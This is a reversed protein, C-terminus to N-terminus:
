VHYEPSKFTLHRVGEPMDAIKRIGGWTQKYNPIVLENVAKSVVNGAVGAPNAFLMFTEKRKATATPYVMAQTSGNDNYVEVLDGEKVGLDAMDDPNMQIFPYPWRDTVLENDQDLYASQWVHNTRGNNILFPWKDKEAQKGAAQLGRWQTEFFTAKGDKGGFKGDVYLRKTGVIKGDKLDTAPEQFGNTGMARLADYTVFKGGNANAHYGDMFADEETKWDFGKFKDAVDNKGMARFTREMANALRAAILCDPMAQGPPDMYRETLRHRREGNMSTLNMEGSTAAPLWVHSAQGIKSPVIDVDVSFLGGAKIAAVIAAVMAKRDGYAVSSMADKVMDTRKKYVRKFEM